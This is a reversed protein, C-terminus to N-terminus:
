DIVQLCQRGQGRHLAAMCLDLLEGPKSSDLRWGRGKYGLEVWFRDAADSSGKGSQISTIEVGQDFYLASYIIKSIQDVVLNIASQWM